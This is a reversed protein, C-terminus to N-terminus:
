EKRRLNLLLRTIVYTLAVWVVAHILGLIFIIMNFNVNAGPALLAAFFSLAVTAGLGLSLIMAHRHDSLNGTDINKRLTLVTTIIGTSAVIIFVFLPAM